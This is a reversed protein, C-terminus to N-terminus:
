YDMRHLYVGADMLDQETITFMSTLQGIISIFLMQAAIFKRLYKGPSINM